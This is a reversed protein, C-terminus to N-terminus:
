AESSLRVGTDLLMKYFELNLPIIGKKEEFTAFSPSNPFNLYYARKLREKLPHIAL